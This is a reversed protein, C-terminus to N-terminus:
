NSANHKARGGDRGSWQEIFDSVCRRTQLAAAAQRFIAGREDGSSSGQERASELDSMLRTFEQFDLTGSGDVDIRAFLERAAAEADSGGMVVAFAGVVEDFEVEGGGDADLADFLERLQARECDGLSSQKLKRRRLMWSATTAELDRLRLTELTEEDRADRRRLEDIARLDERLRRAIEVVSAANTQVLADSPGDAPTMTPNATM